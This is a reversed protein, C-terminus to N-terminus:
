FAFSSDLLLMTLYCLHYIREGTLRSISPEVGERVALLQTSVDISQEVTHLLQWATYFWFCHRQM